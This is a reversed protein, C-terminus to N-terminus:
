AFRVFPKQVTFFLFAPMSGDRSADAEDMGVDVRVKRSVFEVLEANTASGSLIGMLKEGIPLRKKRNHGRVGASVIRWNLRGVLQAFEDLYPGISGLPKNFGTIMVYGGPRCVREWEYLTNAFQRTSEVVNILWASHVFDVAGDMMPLRQLANVQITHVGRAAATHLYPLGKWDKAIVLTHVNYDVGLVSALGGAGGGIDLATRIVPSGGRKLPLSQQGIWDDQIDQTWRRRDVDFMFCTICDSGPPREALATFNAFSYRPWDVFAPPPNFHRDEISPHDHYLDANSKYQFAYNNGYCPRHPYQLCSDNTVTYTGFYAADSIFPLYLQPARRLEPCPCDAVVDTYEAQLYNCELHIWDVKALRSPCQSTPPRPHVPWSQALEHLQADSFEPLSASLTDSPVDLKPCPIPTPQAAAAAAAGSDIEATTLASIDRVALVPAQLGM